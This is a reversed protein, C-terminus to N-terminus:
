NDNNYEEIIDLIDNAFDAIAEDWVDHIGITMNIKSYCESIIKNLVKTRNM